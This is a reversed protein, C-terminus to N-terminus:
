DVFTLRPLKVSHVIAMSKEIVLCLPILLIVIRPYNAQVTCRLSSLHEQIVKIEFSRFYLPYFLGVMWEYLLTSVSVRRLMRALALSM